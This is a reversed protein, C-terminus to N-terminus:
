VKPVPDIAKVLNFQYSVVTSFMLASQQEIFDNLSNSVLFDHSSGSPSKEHAHASGPSFIKVATQDTNKALHSSCLCIARQGNCAQKEQEPKIFVGLPLIWVFFLVILSLAINRKM